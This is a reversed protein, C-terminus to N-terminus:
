IKSPNRAINEDNEHFPPSDFSTVTADDGGRLTLATLILLPYGCLQASTPLPSNSQEEFNERRINLASVSDYSGHSAPKKRGVVSVCCCASLMIQEILTVKERRRFVTVACSAKPTHEKTVAVRSFWWLRHSSKSREKERKDQVCRGGVGVLKM